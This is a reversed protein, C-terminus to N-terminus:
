QRAVWGYRVLEVQCTGDKYLDVIAYQPDFEHYAGKWWNGSVAGSCVYTVGLYEMSDVMHMHGSLCLKVNPHKKFLDKIRHADIHAWSGPIQWDVKPAEEICLYASVSLIPIHSVVCIPTEPKTQQLVDSLWEFQGDDLRATYSQGGIPFTSDLFVFRWGARDLTYCRGPLAYADVAWKKGDVPLNGFVDHNGIACAYPLSCEAKLVDRWLKIQADAYQAGEDDDVNMVNDGGFVIFEPTDRQEQVHRLCAAMGEGAALKSQVHIDTLHAFRMARGRNSRKAPLADAGLPALITAAAGAALLNRRTITNDQAM